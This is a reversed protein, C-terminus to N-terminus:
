PRIRVLWSNRWTLPHNLASPRLGRATTGGRRRLQSARRIPPSSPAIASVRICTLDDHMYLLKWGDGTNPAPATLAKTLGAPRALLQLPAVECAGPAQRLWRVM